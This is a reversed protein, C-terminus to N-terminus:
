ARGRSRAFCAQTSGPHIGEGQNSELAPRSAPEDTTLHTPLSSSVALVRAECVECLNKSTREREQLCHAAREDMASGDPVAAADGHMYVMHPKNSQHPPRKASM